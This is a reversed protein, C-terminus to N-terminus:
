VVTMSKWNKVLHTLPQKNGHNYASLTFPHRLVVTTVTGSFSHHLRQCLAVQRDNWKHTEVEPQRGDYLCRDKQLESSEGAALPTQMDFLVIHQQRHEHSDPTSSSHLCDSHSWLRWRSLMEGQPWKRCCVCTELYFARKSKSWHLSLM